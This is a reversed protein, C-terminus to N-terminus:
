IMAWVTLVIHKKQLLFKLLYDRFCSLVFYFFNLNEHKRGKRGEPKLVARTKRSSAKFVDRSLKKRKPEPEDPNPHFIDLYQDSRNKRRAPSTKITINSIVLGKPRRPEAKELSAEFFLLQRSRAKLAMAM